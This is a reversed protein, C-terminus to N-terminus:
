RSEFAPVRIMREHMEPVIEHLDLRACAALDAGLGVELLAAGAASAELFSVDPVFHSALAHVARSADDLVPAERGKPQHTILAQVLHGACLADDLAFGGEKGACVLVVESAGAVSKAVATLNTFAAIVVRTANQAAWLARTGNTTSMVLRCGDVREPTFESPSNGLDFGEIKLGRREGCLLTDERGMTQALRIAEEMSVTPYIARVGAALAEVIVTTARVVDIVVATRGAMERGEAEAASLATGIRLPGKSGEIAPASKLEAEGRIM